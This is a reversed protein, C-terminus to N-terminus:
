TCIDTKFACYHNKSPYFFATFSNLINTKTCLAVFASMFLIRPWSIIEQLANVSKLYEGHTKVFSYRKTVSTRLHGHQGDTIDRRKM